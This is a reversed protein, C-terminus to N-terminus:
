KSAKEWDKLWQPKPKPAAMYPEPKPGVVINTNEPSVYSVILDAVRMENTVPADHAAKRSEWAAIEANRKEVATQQEVARDADGIGGLCM